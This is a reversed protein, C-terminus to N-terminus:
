FFRVGKEPESDTSLGKKFMDIQKDYAELLDVIYSSSIVDIGESQLGESGLRNFAMVAVDVAISNLVTPFTTVGARVAINDQVSTIIDKLVDDKSTDTIGLRIKVRSLVTSDAM